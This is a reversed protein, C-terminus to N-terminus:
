TSMTFRGTQPLSLGSHITRNRLNSSVFTGSFIPPSSKTGTYIYLYEPDSVQYDMHEAKELVNAREFDIPMNLDDTLIFIGTEGGAPETSVNGEWSLTISQMIVVEEQEASACAAVGFASLLFLVALVALLYAMRFRCVTKCRKM